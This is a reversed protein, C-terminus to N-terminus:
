LYNPFGWSMLLGADHDPTISPTVTTLFTDPEPCVYTGFDADGSTTFEWCAATNANALTALSITTYASGSYEGSYHNMAGLAAPDWIRLGADPLDELM